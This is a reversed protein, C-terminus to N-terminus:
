TLLLTRIAQLPLDKIRFDGFPPKHEDLNYKIDNAMIVRNESSKERWGSKLIINIKNVCFGILLSVSTALQIYGLYTMVLDPIEPITSAYKFSGDAMIVKDYEYFGIVTFSILVAMITSFDRLIGLRGPTIKIMDHSRLELHEMEDIFSPTKKILYLIKHTNSQRPV